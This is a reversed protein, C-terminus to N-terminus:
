SRSKKSQSFHSRIFLGVIGIGFLVGVGPEPVPSDATAVTFLNTPDSVSAVDAIALDYKTPNVIGFSFTATGGIPLVVSSPIGGVLTGTPALFGNINFNAIDNDSFLQINSYVEPFPDPNIFTAFGQLGGPVQVFALSMPQGLITVNGKTTGDLTWMSAATIGFPDKVDTSFDIDVKGTQGLDGFTNQAFQAGMGDGNLAGTATKPPTDRTNLKVQTVKKSFFVNLDNVTIGLNNQITQRKIPDGLPSFPDVVIASAQCISTVTTLFQLTLLMWSVQM